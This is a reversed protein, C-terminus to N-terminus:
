VNIRAKSNSYRNPDALGSDLYKKETVYCGKDDRCICENEKIEMGGNEVVMSQHSGFWSPTTIEVGTEVKKKSGKAM